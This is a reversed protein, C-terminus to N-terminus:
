LITDYSGFYSTVNRKGQLGRYETRISLPTCAFLANAVPSLINVQKCAPSTSKAGHVRYRDEIYLENM